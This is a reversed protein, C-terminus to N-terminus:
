GAARGALQYVYALVEAIARYFKPPVEEGVEVSAYLARALPPRQVVPVASQLAIQRIRGALWGKGKALVRPAAMTTEDYRIAVAYETPNTVVVDAKPVDLNLRQMALRLQAQRRRQKILPDGEMRKLEDRVEQRTMRLNKELKWRQYSYDILGLVLLILAMRVSLTFTIQAALSFAGAPELTASGVLPLIEARILYWAVGAILAVKLVGMLGRTISDTSFLRKLGKKPSINELKPKAKKWALVPGSQLLAGLATVVLLLLLLPAIMGAAVSAAQLLWVTVQGADPAVPDGLQRTLAMARNWIGPAFWNLLILGALLVIAATLDTSRPVNGQERAEARRRPTPQETKESANEDAAM